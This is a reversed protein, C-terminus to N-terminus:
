YRLIPPKIIKKQVLPKIKQALKEFEAGLDSKEKFVLVSIVSINEARRAVDHLQALLGLHTKIDKEGVAIIPEGNENGVLYLDPNPEFSAVLQQFFNMIHNSNEPYAYVLPVYNQELFDNQVETQLERMQAPSYIEGDENFDFGLSLNQACLNDFLETANMEIFHINEGCFSALNLASSFGLAMEVEATAFKMLNIQVDSRKEIPIFIPDYLLKSLKSLPNTM